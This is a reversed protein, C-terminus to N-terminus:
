ETSPFYPSVRGLRALAEGTLRRTTWGDMAESGIRDYFGIAPANWDLVSWELRPLGEAV